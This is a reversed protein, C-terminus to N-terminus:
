PTPTVARAMSRTTRPRPFLRRAMLHAVMEVWLSSLPGASVRYLKDRLSGDRSFPRIALCIKKDVVFDVTRSPLIYPHQADYAWEHSRTSLLLNPFARHFSATVKISDFLSAFCSRIPESTIM